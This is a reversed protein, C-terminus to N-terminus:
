FVIVHSYIFFLSMFTYKLPPVESYKNNRVSGQTYYDALTHPVLSVVGGGWCCHWGAPLDLISNWGAPLNM